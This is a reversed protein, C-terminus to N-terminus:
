YIVWPVQAYAYTNTHLCKLQIFKIGEYACTTHMGNSRCFSPSYMLQGFLKLRAEKSSLGHQLLM